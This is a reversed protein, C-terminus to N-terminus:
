GNSKQDALFRFLKWPYCRAAHGAICSARWNRNKWDTVPHQGASAGLALARVSMFVSSIRTVIEGSVQAYKTEKDYNCKM